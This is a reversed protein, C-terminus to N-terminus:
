VARETKASSCTDKDEEVQKMRTEMGVEPDVEEYRLFRDAKEEPETRSTDLDVPLVARRAFMLQFPTFKTFEQRSTNYALVHKSILEM